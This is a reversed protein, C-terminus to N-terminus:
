QRSGSRREWRQRATKRAADTRAQFRQLPGCRPGELKGMDERNLLFIVGEKGGSFMLPSNPIWTVGGASMEINELFPYEHNRPTFWDAFKLSPGAFKLTSSGFNSVGDYSGGATSLYINGVRGDRDWPRGALVWREPWDADDPVSGVTAEPRACEIKGFGEQSWHQDNPDPAINACAVYLVDNVMLLGARQLAGKVNTLTGEPGAFPFSLLQPSNYKPSGNHIDLANVFLNYDNGKLVMAVVYLTGSPVDVFPTGLIGHHM